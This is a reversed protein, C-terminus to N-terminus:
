EDNDDEEDDPYDSDLQEVQSRYLRYTDHIESNMPNEIGNETLISAIIMLDSEDTVNPLARKVAPLVLDRKADFRESEEKLQAESPIAGHEIAYARLETLAEDIMRQENGQIQEPAGLQRLRLLRGYRNALKQIMQTPVEM